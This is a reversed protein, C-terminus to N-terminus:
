CLIQWWVYVVVVICFDEVCVLGAGGAVGVEAGGDGDEGDSPDRRGLPDFPNAARGTPSEASARGPSRSPTPAEERSGTLGAPLM